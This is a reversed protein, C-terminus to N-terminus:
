RRVYQLYESLNVGMDVGESAQEVWQGSLGEVSCILQVLQAKYLGTNVQPMPDAIAIFRPEFWGGGQRRGPLILATAM